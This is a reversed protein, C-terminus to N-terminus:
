TEKSLIFELSLYGIGFDTQYALIDSQWKLSSLAGLVVMLPKLACESADAIFKRDMALINETATESSSLYEIVRNDFKPGKSSYGAPSKRSLRHSMDGSAILAIRRESAQLIDGLAVGFKHHAELSFKDVTGLSLTRVNENKEKLLYLPIASGYDLSPESLLRLTFEDKLSNRIEDSLSIAGKLKTKQTIFGFDQFSLDMEPACNIIFQELYSHNHPSVIVVTEIKNDKLDQAIDAYVSSTKALLSHNAKGIEPILLPSHPLLYSKIIPM